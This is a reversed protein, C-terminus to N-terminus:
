QALDILRDKLSPAFIIAPWVINFTIAPNHKPAPTNEINGNVKITAIVANSIKTAIKCAYM